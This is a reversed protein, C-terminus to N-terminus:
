QSEGLAIKEELWPENCSFQHRKNTKIPPASALCAKTGKKCRGYFSCGPIPKSLDPVQGPIFHLNEDAYSDLRPVTELLQQTYPHSPTKLVEHVTGSEVIKGAYMVEVRDSITGVVGLDHSILLVAIGKSLALEKLLILIQAQVTVDLATTPEDAILVKPECILAMAIVVRQIQGGSLQHPYKEMAVEPEPLHVDALSKLILTNVNEKTANTRAFAVDRLQEKIKFFPNLATLPNQFYDQSSGLIM